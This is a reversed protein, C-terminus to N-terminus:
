FNMKMKQKVKTKFLKNIRIVIKKDLSKLQKVKVNLFAKNKKYFKNKKSNSCKIISEKPSNNKVILLFIDEKAQLIIIL